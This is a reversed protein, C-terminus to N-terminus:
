KLNLAMTAPMNIISVFRKDVVAIGDIFKVEGESLHSPPPLIDSGPIRVVGIVKDVAVGIPGKPGRVILIKGKGTDDSATGTLSLKLKLDIVPIVKGRLSTIGLIYKPVNPVTTIRQYKLIEELHSISFAFDEKLLSFTLIEVVEEARGTGAKGQIGPPEPREGRAGRDEQIAPEPEQRSEGKKDAAEAPKAPAEDSISQGSSTEDSPTNEDEPKKLSRSSEKGEQDGAGSERIKKRIKAIDM